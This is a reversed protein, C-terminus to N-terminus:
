IQQYVKYLSGQFGPKMLIKRRWFHLTTNVTFTTNVTSHTLIVPGANCSYWLSCALFTTKPIVWFISSRLNLLFPFIILLTGTCFVFTNKKIYVGSTRWIFVITTQVKSRGRIILPLFLSGFITWKSMNLELSRHSFGLYSIM